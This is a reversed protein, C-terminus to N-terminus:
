AREGGAAVVPRYRDLFARLIDQEIRGRRASPVPIRAVIDIRGPAELRVLLRPEPTPVVLGTRKVMREFHRKASEIFEACAEHAVESLVKEAARWDDKDTLPVVVSHFVFQETFSENTVSATLLVSNPLVVARGTHQHAPGVEMLTTTLLNYDVVDGRIDGIEIRDGVTFASSSTRLIAGSFCSIIEKTAIVLAAAVAVVSLAFTRLQEAWIVVLFLTFLLVSVNRAMVIWRRRMEPSPLESVRLWGLVAWRAAVVALVLAASAVLKVTLAADGGLVEQLDLSM